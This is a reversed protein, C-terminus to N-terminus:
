RLRAIAADIRGIEHAAAMARSRNEEVVEPKARAVFDANDLKRAVKDRDDAARARERLLRAREADIDILGALPLFLTAEELVIQACGAPPDAPAAEIASVRALRGAAELWQEARALTQPAADRLLIPAKLSPPVNMESRVTRVDGVLRVLWDLEARAAAAGPM